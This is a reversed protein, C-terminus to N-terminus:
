EVTLTSAMTPHLTCAVTYRGPKLTSITWSKGPAIAGSDFVGRATATHAVFDHNIWTVRDGAHVTLSAPSFRMDEITITVAIPAAPGPGTRDAAAKPSSARSRRRM